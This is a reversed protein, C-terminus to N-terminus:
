ARFGVEGDNPWIVRHWGFGAAHQGPHGDPRRCCYSVSYVDRCSDAWSTYAFELDLRDNTDM